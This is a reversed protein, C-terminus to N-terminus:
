FYSDFRRVSVAADIKAKSVISYLLDLSLNPAAIIGRSGMGNIIFINKHVPHSGIIPKRDKVTPRIGAEQDIITYTANLIKDLQGILDKRASETPKHNLNQRSYTAGFKFRHNGIPILFYKGKFIKEQSISDCEIILYEGKNGYIPLYNFFPNNLVGFGEAFIISKYKESKYSIYDPFINLLEHVFTANSFQNSQILKDKYSELYTKLDIRASSFVNGTKYPANIYQPPSFLDDSLHNSLTTTDSKTFWDNQEEISSLIRYIPTKFFLESNIKSYFQISKQFFQNLKWIPQIRKLSVPNLLGGAVKSSRQSNDAIVDFSLGLQNANQAVAFGSIGFGILLFDKM